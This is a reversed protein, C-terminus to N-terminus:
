PHFQLKGSAPFQQQHGPPDWSAATGAVRGPAGCCPDRFGQCTTGSLVCRPWCWWCAWYPSGCRGPHPAPRALLERLGPVFLLRQEPAPPTGRCVLQKIPARPAARSRCPELGHQHRLRGQGVEGRGWWDGPLRSPSRALAPAGCSALGSGRSDQWLWAAM